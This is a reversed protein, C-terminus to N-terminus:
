GGDRAGLVVDAFERLSYVVRLHAPPVVDGMARAHDLLYVRQVGNRALYFATRPDDDIHADVHLMKAIALKHQSPRLGIPAMRIATVKEDLGHRRLWRRLLPEGQASRGTVILLEHGAASLEHLISAADPAMRRWGFRLYEIGLRLRQQPAPADYFREYADPLPDVHADAAKVAMRGFPTLCLVGDFDFSIRM